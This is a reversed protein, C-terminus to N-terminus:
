RALIMKRSQEFAGASLRYFYVGTAVQRGHEDKGDWAVAHDGAPLIRDVLTIIKEGMLNFIALNVQSSKGVFFRIKTTPNFPNPYNQALAFTKTLQPEFTLEQSFTSGDVMKAEIRYSYHGVPDAETDTFASQEPPLTAIRVFDGAPALKRLIAVSVIEDVPGSFQWSLSVAPLGNRVDVGVQAAITLIEEVPTPNGIPQSFETFPSLVGYKTSLAIIEDKLEDPEGETLWRAYLHDIKKKAWIKPAFVNATNSDPFMVGPYVIATDSNGVTAHLTIDTSVPNRYRGAIVQQFGAFMDPLEVPFVDFADLQGFDLRVDALVPNNVREFFNGIIQDIPEDPEIYTAVGHNQDALAQLLDKGADFGVGFVFISAENTNANRVNALIADKETVGATPQGDTLFIIQNIEGPITQELATLLATNINTGGAAGIGSIYSVAATINEPTAQVAEPRFQRISSSFDVINFFDNGNLHEVSFQAADRAQAIKNGSMSGSRDLVFVFHKNLIDEQDTEQPELLAVFFGSSESSDAPDRYPFTFFGVENQALQYDVIFHQNPFLNAQDFGVTASFPESLDIGSLFGPTQIDEITRHTSFTVLIAFGELADRAFQQSNLPYTYRIAGFDFPLLEAYSLRIRFTDSTAVAPLVFPNPLLYNLLDPDANDGPLSQNGGGSDAETLQFDVYTSDQWVSIGTVAANEPLPFMYLVKLSDVDEPNIFEHTVTTLAIQDFIQVDVQSRSLRLFEKSQQNQLLGDAFSSSVLFLTLLFVRSHTKSCSM